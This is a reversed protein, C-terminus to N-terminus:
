LVTAATEVNKNDKWIKQLDGVVRDGGLGAELVAVVDHLDVALADEAHVVVRALLEDLPGSVSHGDFDLPSTLGLDFLFTFYIDRKNRPTIM